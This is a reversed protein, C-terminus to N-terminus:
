PIYFDLALPTSYLSTGQQLFLVYQGSVLNHVQLTFVGNGDRKQDIAVIQTKDIDFHYAGLFAQFTGVRVERSNKKERAQTLLFTAGLPVGSACFSANRDLSLSSSRGSYVDTINDHGMTITAVRDKVKQVHATPVEVWSSDKLAYVGPRSPCSPQTQNQAYCSMAVMSLLALILVKRMFGGYGYTSLICKGGAPYWM